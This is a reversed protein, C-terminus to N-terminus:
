ALKEELLRVLMGVESRRLKPLRGREDCAALLEEAMERGLRAADSVPELARTMSVLSRLTPADSGADLFAIPAEDRACTERVFRELWRATAAMKPYDLKDPTDAPTHYYRARGGTLFLFPRRRQWFAAYDSLPPVTEADVPRLVVGPEASVIRELHELTGVSREAGLAFLSARVDDPVEPPGFAHGVLDMCVMMDITELPVPPERAFRESGMGGTLFYPPEEGDFSALIVGRGAPARRALSRGVDVLIAVAAANDDAGWFVEGGLKGLHDFHAGVLVWRDVDGRVTAIVNAGHCGPVEQEVPALGAARFAAVVEARAATGERTGPRRGACAPSCLTEVLDRM